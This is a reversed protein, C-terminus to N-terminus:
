LEELLTETLYYPRRREWDGWEAESYQFAWKDGYKEMMKERAEGFTGKIRVYKGEHEQGFGFTFTWTQPKEEPVKNDCMLDCMEELSSAACMMEIRRKLDQGDGM